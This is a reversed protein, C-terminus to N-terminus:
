VRFNFEGVLFHVIMSASQSCLYVVRGGFGDVSFLWCFVLLMMVSSRVAGGYKRAKKVEMPLEKCEPFVLSRQKWIAMGRVIEM